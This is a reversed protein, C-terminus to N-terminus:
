ALARRATTTYRVINVEVGQWVCVQLAEHAEAVHTASLHFDEFAVVLVLVVVQHTTLSEFRVNGRATTSFRDFVDARETASPESNLNARGRVCLEGKSEAYGRDGGGVVAYGNM